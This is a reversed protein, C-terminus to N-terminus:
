HRLGCRGLCGSFQLQYTLDSQRRSASGDWPKFFGVHAGVLEVAIPEDHDVVAHLQSLGTTGAKAAVAPDLMPNAEDYRAQRILDIFHRAFEDDDKPAFKQIMAKQNFCGTFLLSIFAILAPKM